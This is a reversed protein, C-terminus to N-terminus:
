GEAMAEMSEQADRALIEPLFFVSRTVHQNCENEIERKRQEQQYNEAERPRAVGALAPKTTEEM